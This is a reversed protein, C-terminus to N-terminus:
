FSAVVVVLAAKQEGGNLYGSIPGSTGNLNTVQFNGFRSAEEEFTCTVNTDAQGASLARMTM